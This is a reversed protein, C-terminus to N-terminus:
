NQTLWSKRVDSNNGFLLEFVETLYGDDVIPILTNTKGSLIMEWDYKSMSGLGKMYEITWGKYKDKVKEYDSMTTFHIRQKGKSAVVNPAVLRYFVPEYNPDFLEPWLKFFLCALLTFIDDGDHDADTSPVIKGYRMTNRDARKGPVLGIIQLLESIKGMKLIQAPTYDWVNNIKGTLAYAATTSPDRAESIQSKASLGETILLQCEFRNRSTADLLGPVIIKKKIKKEHDDIAKGNEKAHHRDNAHALVSELWPTATKVFSKWNTDIANTFEKRLDPGVLRTKAQSDYEPNKLKLNALVLLGRRIDNRTVEAKLKKAERLLQASVRDFILNFFQTNCKGGDFLLSSNVWTFMQEDIGDHGDCILYIEGQIHPENVEFKHTIKGSAINSIYEQLGKKYRFKENNYEVTIEPNTMAIEIARNRILSNPLSIDQFVLPDLQFKLETGTAKGAIDVILPKSAKLAGDSFKQSYRKGDRQINVIFDTCCFNTCASGVGNQGIVGVEKDDTFNRGARLHSLAIEPTHIEKKSRGTGEVKKDIPIGRGNDKIAYSGIEPDAVISLIKTRTTLHSFEDLSNDLIENIAKYIAPIFTVEELKLTSESLLPITYATPHMSGLYVQTRLRVHERDTLSVIDESNYAAEKGM